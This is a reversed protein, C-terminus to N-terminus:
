ITICQPKDLTFFVIKLGSNIFSYVTCSFYQARHVTESICHPCTLWNELFKIDDTHEYPTIFKEIIIKM